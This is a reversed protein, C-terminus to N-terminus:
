IATDCHDCRKASCLLVGGPIEIKNGCVPGFDVDAALVLEDAAFDDLPVALAVSGDPAGGSGSIGCVVLILATGGAIDRNHLQNGGSRPYRCAKEPRRPVRPCPQFVAAMTAM